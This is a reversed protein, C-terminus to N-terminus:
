DMDCLSLPILVCDFWSGCKFCTNLYLLDLLTRKRQSLMQVSTGGNSHVAVAAVPPAPTTTAGFSKAPWFMARSEVVTKVFHRLNM